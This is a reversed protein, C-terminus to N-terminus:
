CGRSPSELDERALAPARCRALHEVVAGSCRAHERHRSARHGPLTHPPLCVVSLSCSGNSESGCPTKISTKAALCSGEADTGALSRASGRSPPRSWTRM